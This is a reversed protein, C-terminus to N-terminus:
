AVLWFVLALFLFGGCFKDLRKGPDNQIFFSGAGLIMAVVFAVNGAFGTWGLGKAWHGESCGAGLLAGFVLALVRMM